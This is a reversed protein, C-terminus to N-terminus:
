LQKTQSKKKPLQKRLESSNEDFIPKDLQKNLARVADVTTSPRKNRNKQKSSSPVAASKDISDRTMTTTTPGVMNEEQLMSFRRATIVDKTSFANYYGRTKKQINQIALEKREELPTPGLKFNNVSKQITNGRVKNNKKIKNGSELVPMLMQNLKKDTRWIELPDKILDVSLERYAKNEFSSQDIRKTANIPFNDQRSISRNGKRSISLPKGLGGTKLNAFYHYQRRENPENNYELTGEQGELFRLKEPKLCALEPNKKYFTETIYGSIFNRLSEITIKSTFIERKDQTDLISYDLRHKSSCDSRYQNIAKEIEMNKQLLNKFTSVLMERKSELDIQVVTATRHLGMQKSIFDFPTLFNLFDLDSIVDYPNRACPYTGIKLLNPNKSVTTPRHKETPQRASSTETRLPCLSTAPRIITKNSVNRKLSLECAIQKMMERVLTKRSPPEEQELTKATKIDSLDEFTTSMRLSPSVDRHSVKNFETSLRMRSNNTEETRLSKQSSIAQITKSATNSIIAAPMRSKIVPKESGQISIDTALVRRSEGLDATRNLNSQSTSKSTTVPRECELIGAKQIWFNKEEPKSETVQPKMANLNKILQSAREKLIDQYHSRSVEVM